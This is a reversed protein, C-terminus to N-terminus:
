FGTGAPPSKQSGCHTKRGLHINRGSDVRSFVTRLFPSEEVFLSLLQQSWTLTQGSRTVTFTLSRWIELPLFSFRDEGEELILKNGERKM